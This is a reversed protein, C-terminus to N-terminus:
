RVCRVYRLHPEIDRGVKTVLDALIAMSSIAVKFNPDAVLTMLFAIFKGLTPTLKSKDTLGSLAKQLLDIATARSQTSHSHTLTHTLSYTALTLSYRTRTHTCSQM